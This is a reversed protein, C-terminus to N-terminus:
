DRSGSENTTDSDAVLLEAVHRFELDLGRKSARGSMALLCGMDGAVVTAAGSASIDDLKDDSMRASIEPMRACFSGGFGCCVGQTQLEVVEINNQTKLLSRPQEAIGLERLGACGDHYAVNSAEPTHARPPLQVVETLFDTLEYCRQSLNLARERWTGKLLKPYHQCLMAACSGSPMVVYDFPELLEINQKATPLAAAYDGGSYAPQGCCTQSAPVTVRCGAEELLALAAFGASPRFVDILCTAFLAVHPQGTLHSSGPGHDPM